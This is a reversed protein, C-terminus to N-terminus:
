GHNVRRILFKENSLERVIEWGEEICLPLEDEKIIKSQFPKSNNVSQPMTMRKIEVKLTEEEEDLSPDRGLEKQKEIRVRMPDIGYMKAQERWMELLLEKKNVTTVESFCLKAYEQRLQEVKEKDFSISSDVVRVGSGFYTDQSGPLIHGMLFEQVKPDLKRRVM